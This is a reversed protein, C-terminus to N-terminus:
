VVKSVNYEFMRLRRAIANVGLRDKLLVRMIRLRNLEGLARLVAM